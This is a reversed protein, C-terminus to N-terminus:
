LEMIVMKGKIVTLSVSSLLWISLMSRDYGSPIDLVLYNNDILASREDRTFLRKSQFVTNNHSLRIEVTVARAYSNELEINYLIQYKKGAPLLISTSCKDCYLAFKSDLGTDQKFKMATNGQWTGGASAATFVSVTPPPVACPYDPYCPDPFRPDPCPCDQNYLSPGIYRARETWYMENVAELRLYYAQELHIANIITKNISRNISLLEEIGGSVEVEQIKEGEANLIHSLAAEVLAISEIMDSLSQETIYPANSQNTVGNSLKNPSM